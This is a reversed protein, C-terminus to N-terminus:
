KYGNWASNARQECEFRDIPNASGKVTRWPGTYDLQWSCDVQLRLTAGPSDVCENWAATTRWHAACGLTRGSSGSAQASQATVAMGTLAMMTVATVGVARKVGTLRGASSPVEGTVATATDAVSSNNRTSM